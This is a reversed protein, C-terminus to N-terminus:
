LLVLSLIKGIGPITRLLSCAKSDHLKADRVLNTELQWLLQDYHGVTALDAEVSLRMSRQEFRDLVDRNGAYTLMKEFADHNYQQNVLQVHALLESRRRVLFM